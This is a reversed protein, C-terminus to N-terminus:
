VPCEPPGIPFPAIKNGGYLVFNFYKAIGGSGDDALLAANKYKETQNMFGFLVYSGSRLCVAHDQVGNKYIPLKFKAGAGLKIYVFGGGEYYADYPEGGADIFVSDNPGLSHPINQIYPALAAGLQSDWRSDKDYLIVGWGFCCAIPANPFAGNDQYYLEIAKQLTQMDSYRRVDYARSRANRILTLAVSALLGVIAVVVM